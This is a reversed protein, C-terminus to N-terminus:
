TDWMINDSEEWSPYTSLAHALWPVIGVSPVIAASACAIITVMGQPDVSTQSVYVYLYVHLEKEILTMFDVTKIGEMQTEECYVTFEEFPVRIFNSTGEIIPNLPQKLM